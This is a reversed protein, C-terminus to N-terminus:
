CCSRARRHRSAAQMAVGGAFVAGIMFQGEAGINWVNARFCIALGLAILVLPTAKVALETWRTPARSRSSLLVDAAGRLPDKGLLAFLAVGILVTIALALLPSALRCRRSPQPRAELRLM